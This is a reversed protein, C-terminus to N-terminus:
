KNCSLPRTYGDAVGIAFIVLAGIGILAWAGIGGNTNNMEENSLEKM